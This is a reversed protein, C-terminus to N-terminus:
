LNGFVVVWSLLFVVLMISGFLYLYIDMMIEIGDKIGKDVMKMFENVRGVNDGFNLIVYIFYM